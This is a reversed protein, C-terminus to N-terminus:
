GYTWGGLRLERHEILCARLHWACLNVQADRVGRVGAEGDRWRRLWV